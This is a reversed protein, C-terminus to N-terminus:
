RCYCGDLEIGRGTVRPIQRKFTVSKGTMEQNKRSLGKPANGSGAFPNFAKNKKGKKGDGGEVRNQNLVSPASAYDFVDEDEEQDGANDEKKKAKKKEKERRKEKGKRKGGLLAQELADASAPDQDNGSEAEEKKGQVDKTTGVGKCEGEGIAADDLKRKRGGGLSRVVIVDPVGEKKIPRNKIYEHEM